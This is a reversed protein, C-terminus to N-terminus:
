KLKQPYVGKEILNKISEVAKVKDQRYTVGFWQSQTKLIKVDVKGQSILNDVVSPIYFEAKNNSRNKQLFDAFQKELSDFISPKFGWFNMSVIEDGSLLHETGQDDYFKAGDGNREIKTREVVKNLLMQDDYACVGRSVHGHDSLTNRLTYGVMSYNNEVSDPDRLFEAMIEFADSGYFDDANIVAFPEKIHDKAVLIAQGTGWPKERGEPLDFEGLCKDLEQYAYKIEVIDEFKGAVKEKFTEAFGQRIVFVVKGFGARIADYISYDIIKEDNPGIPDLQKLGGYRSGMGAAMILLTPKM